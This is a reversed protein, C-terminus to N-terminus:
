VSPPAQCSTPPPPLVTMLFWERPVTILVLKWLQRVQLNWQVMGNSPGNSPWSSIILQNATVKVRRRAPYFFSSDTTYIFRTLTAMINKTQLIKGMLPDVIWGHCLLFAKELCMCCNTPNLRAKLIARKLDTWGFACVWLILVTQWIPSAM